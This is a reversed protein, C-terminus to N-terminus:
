GAADRLGVRAGVVKAGSPDAVTGTVRGREAAAGACAILTFLAVLLAGRLCLLPTRGPLTRQAVFQLARRADHSNTPSPGYRPGAIFRTFM